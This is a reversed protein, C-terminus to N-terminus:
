TPVAVPIGDRGAGRAMHSFHSGDFSMWFGGHIFMAVAGAPADEPLFLDLRNRDNPGYALGLEARAAGRYAAAAPAWGEVIGAFGPVTRTSDFEAEYDIPPSTM